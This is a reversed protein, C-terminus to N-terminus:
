AALSRGLDSTISVPPLLGLGLRRSGRLGPAVSAHQGPGFRPPPGGPATSSEFWCLDRKAHLV